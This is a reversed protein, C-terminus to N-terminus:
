GAAAAEAMRVVQEGEWTCDRGVILGLLQEQLSAPGDYPAQGEEDEIATDLVAAGALCCHLLHLRLFDQRGRWTM